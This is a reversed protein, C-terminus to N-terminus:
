QFEPAFGDLVNLVHQQLMQLTELVLTEDDFLIQRTIHGEVKV